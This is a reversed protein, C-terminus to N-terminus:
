SGFANAAVLHIACYNLLDRFSLPCCPAFEGARGFKRLLFGAKLCIYGISTLM